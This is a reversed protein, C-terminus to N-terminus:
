TRGERLYKEGDKIEQEFEEITDSPRLGVASTEGLSLLRLTRYLTKFSRDIAEILALTEQNSEERALDISLEITQLPTNNLHQLGAFLNRLRQYVLVRESAAGEKKILALTQLRSYYIVGSAIIFMLTAWPEQIGLNRRLEFPWHYYQVFPVVACLFLSLWGVLRKPATLVAIFLALFKIGVYPQFVIDVVFYEHNFYTMTLLFIIEALFIWEVLRSEKKLLLLGILMVLTLFLCITVPLVLQPARVLWVFFNIPLVISATILLKYTAQRMTQGKMKIEM